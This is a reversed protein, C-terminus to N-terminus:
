PTPHRECPLRRNCPELWDDDTPSIEVPCRTIQRYAAEAEGLAAHPPSPAARTWKADESALYAEALAVAAEQAAEEAEAPLPEARSLEAILALHRRQTAELEAIRDCARCGCFRGLDAAICIM